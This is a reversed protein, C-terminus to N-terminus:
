IREHLIVISYAFDNPVAYQIMEFSRIRQQLDQKDCRHTAKYLHRQFLEPQNRKSDARDMAIRSDRISPNDLRDCVIPPELARANDRRVFPPSWSNPDKKRAVALLSLYLSLVTESKKLRVYKM